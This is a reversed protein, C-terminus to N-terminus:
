ISSAILAALEDIAWKLILTWPVLAQPTPNPTPGSLSLNLKELETVADFNEPKQMSFISLDPTPPTSPNDPDGITSKMAFGQLTWLNRSFLPLKEKVKGQRLIQVVEVSEALPFDQPYAAM